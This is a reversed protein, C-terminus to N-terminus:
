SLHGVFIAAAVFSVPLVSTLVSKAKILISEAVLVSPLEAIVLPMSLTFNGIHLLWSVDCRTRVASSPTMALSVSTAM